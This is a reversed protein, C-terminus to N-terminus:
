SRIDSTNIVFVYIGSKLIKKFHIVSIYTVARKEYFDRVISVHFM